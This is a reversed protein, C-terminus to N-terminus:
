RATNRITSGARFSFGLWKATNEAVVKGDLKLYTDTQLNMQSSPVGYPSYGPLPSSGAKGGDYSPVWGPGRNGTPNIAKQLEIMLKGVGLTAAAIIAGGVALAVTGAVM